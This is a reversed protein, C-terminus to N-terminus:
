KWGRFSYVCVCVVEREKWVFPSLQGNRTEKARSDTPHRCLRESDITWREESGRVCAHSFSRGEKKKQVDM